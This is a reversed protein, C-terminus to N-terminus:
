LWRHWSMLLMFAYPVFSHEALHLLWPTLFKNVECCKLASYLWVLMVSQSNSRRCTQLWSFLHWQSWPQAGGKQSTGCESCFSPLMCTNAERYAQGKFSWMATQTQEEEATEWWSQISSTSKEYVRLCNRETGILVFLCQDLPIGRNTQVFATITNCYMKNVSHTVYTTVHENQPAIHTNTHTCLCTRHHKNHRHHNAYKQQQDQNDPTQHAADFLLLRCLPVPALRM